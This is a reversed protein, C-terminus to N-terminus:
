RSRWRAAPWGRGARQLARGASPGRRRRRLWGLMALGGVAPLIVGPEPVAQFTSVAIEDAIATGMRIGDTADFRWHIGLYVRSIANEWEPSMLDPSGGDLHTTFSSFTRVVDAPTTGTDWIGPLLEDSTLAYTASGTIAAYSNTGYFNEVTRFM